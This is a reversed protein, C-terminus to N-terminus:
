WNFNEEVWNRHYQNGLGSFFDHIRAQSTGLYFWDAIPNNTVNYVTTLGLQELCVDIRSDVFVKLQHSTIGEIKGEEFIMDVIKHEHQRVKECAAYITDYLALQEETNLKLESLLTRFLWAGAQSHYSEDRESFAVGAVLNKMKNKGNAQFHKLYGFSSYLVAGEIVSFIAIQQLLNSEDTALANLFEVREKLVPVDVYSDYFEKTNLHLFENIKNYFSAHVNSEFFAFCSAMRQFEPRKFNKAVIGQWYDEGVYLEYKTFLKLVTLVGHREAPTLDVLISQVDKEMNIEDALWFIANQKDAFESAVPYEFIYASEEQLCKPLDRGYINNM